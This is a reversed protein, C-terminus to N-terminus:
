QPLVFKRFRVFKFVARKVTTGDPQVAEEVCRDSCAAVVTIGRNLLGWTVATALTFEGQCLVAQPNLSAIEEVIRKAEDALQTEDWDAPVAPFQYDRLEGYEQAAKTQADSWQAIHHNSFNIFM